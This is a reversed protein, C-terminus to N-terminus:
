LTLADYTRGLVADGARPGFSAGARPQTEQVDTYLLAPSPRHAEPGTESAIAEQLIGREVPLIDQHPVQGTTVVDGSRITLVPEADRNPLFGWSLEEPRDSPVYHRAGEPAFSGTVNVAFGDYPPAEAAGARSALTGGFLLTGLAGGTRVLM